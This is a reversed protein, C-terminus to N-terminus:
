RDVMGSFCSMMIMDDDDDDDDDDDYLPRQEKQLSFVLVLLPKQLVDKFGPKYSTYLRFYIIYTYIIYIDLLLVIKCTVFTNNQGPFDLPYGNKKIIKIKVGRNPLCLTPNM